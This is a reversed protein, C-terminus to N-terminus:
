RVSRCVDIAVIVVIACYVCFVCECHTRHVDRRRDVVCARSRASYAVSTRTVRVVCYVVYRRLLRSPPPPSKSRPPPPPTFSFVGGRFRSRLSARSLSRASNRYRYKTRSYPSLVRQCYRYEAADSMYSAEIHFKIFKM